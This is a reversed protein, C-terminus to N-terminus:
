IDDKTYKRYLDFAQIYPVVKNFNKDLKKKSIIIAKNILDYVDRNPYKVGYTGKAYHSPYVMPYVRDVYPILKLINQGIGLGDMSTISLGFVDIGINIKKSYKLNIEKVFSLINNDKKMSNNYYLLNKLNGDSPYRIYDFQIEDFGMEICKDVISFNYEWVEKSEPDCWSNGKYDRWVTGDLSKISADNFNDSFKPDLFVSLRAVVYINKEHLYDIFKKINLTKKYAGIQKSKNSGDIYVDSNIEKITIVFTNIETFEALFKYQEILKQSNICWPMIHIGRIFRPKDISFLTSFFCLCYLFIFVRTKM